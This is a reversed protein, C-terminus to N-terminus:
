IENPLVIKVENFEYRRLTDTLLTHSQNLYFEKISQKLREHKWKSVLELLFFPTIVHFERKKVREIFKNAVEVQLGKKDWISVTVVDLDILIKKKM